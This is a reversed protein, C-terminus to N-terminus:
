ILAFNLGCLRLKVAKPVIIKFFIQASAPIGFLIHSCKPGLSRNRVLSCDNGLYPSIMAKQLPTSIVVKKSERGPEGASSQLQMPSMGDCWAKMWQFTRPLESLGNM